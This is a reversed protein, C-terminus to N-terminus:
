KSQKSWTRSSHFRQYEKFEQWAWGLFLILYLIVLSRIMFKKSVQFNEVMGVVFLFSSIALGLPDLTALKPSLIHLLLFPINALVCIIYIKRTAFDMQFIHLLLSKFSVALILSFLIGFLPFFFLNWIIRFLDKYFISTLAGSTICLMSQLILIELWDPNPANKIAHIPNRFYYVIYKLSQKIKEKLFDTQKAM